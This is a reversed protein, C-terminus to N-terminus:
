SCQLVLTSPVVKQAQPPSLVETLSMESPYYLLKLIALDAFIPM